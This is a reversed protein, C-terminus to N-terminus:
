YLVFPLNYQQINNPYNFRTYFAGLHITQGLSYTVGSDSIEITLTGSFEFHFLQEGAYIDSQQSETVTHGTTIDPLYGSIWWDLDIPPRPLGFLRTAYFFYPLGDTNMEGIYVSYFVNEMDEIIDTQRLIGNQIRIKSFAGRKEYFDAIYQKKVSDLYEPSRKMSSVLELLRSISDINQPSVILSASHAVNDHKTEVFGYRTILEKCQADYQKVEKEVLPSLSKSCSMVLSLVMLLNIFFFPKTPLIATM